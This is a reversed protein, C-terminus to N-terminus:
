PVDQVVQRVQFDVDRRRIVQQSHLRQRPPRVRLIPIVYLKQDAPQRQLADSLHQLYDLFVVRALLHLQLRLKQEFLNEVPPSSSTLLSLAASRARAEVSTCGGSPSRPRSESHCLGERARRATRAPPVWFPHAVRRSRPLKTRRSPCGGAATTTPLGPRHSVTKRRLSLFGSLLTLQEFGRATECGCSKRARFNGSGRKASHRLHIAAELSSMRRIICSLSGSLVATM